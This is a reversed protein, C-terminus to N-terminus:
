YILSSPISFREELVIIKYDCLAKEKIAQRIDLKYILSGYINTDNMSYITLDDDKENSNCIRLTATMFLKKKIKKSNLMLKFAGEERRKGSGATHHAEDYICIDFEQEKVKHSSQYTSIVIYKDRSDIFRKIEEEDGESDKDSSICLIDFDSEQYFTQYAQRILQLSPVLFLIKKYKKFFFLSVLTKGSGCPMQLIGKDDKNFYNDLERIIPKQYNRPKRRRKVVDEEALEKIKCDDVEDKAEVEEYKIGKSKIYSLIHPIAEINYYETGGDEFCRVTSFEEKMEEDLQYCDYNLLSLCKLTKPRQPYYTKYQRLRANLYKTSGIKVYETEGVKYASSHCLIYIYSM